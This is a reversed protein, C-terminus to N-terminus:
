AADRKWFNKPLELITDTAAERFRREVIDSLQRELRQEMRAVREKLGYAVEEAREAPVVMRAMINLLRQETRELREDFEERLERLVQVLVEHQSPAFYSLREEDFVEGDPAPAPLLADDGDDATMAGIDETESVLAECEAKHRALWDDTEAAFRDSDRYLGRLERRFEDDYTL